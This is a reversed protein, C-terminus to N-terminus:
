SGTEAWRLGVVGAIILAISIMKLATTKEGFFLVGILVVLATGLGAWIAYAMGIEITKLATSLGWFSLGYFLFVLLTPIVKTFGQALKLNTTGAVELLISLILIFWSKM